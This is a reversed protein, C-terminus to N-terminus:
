EYRRIGERCRRRLDRFARWRTLLGPREGLDRSGERREVVLRGNVLRGTALFSVRQEMDPVSFDHYFVAAPVDAPLERGSLSRVAMRGSDWDDVEVTDATLEAGEGWALVAQDAGSRRAVPYPDGPDILRVVHRGMYWWNERQLLLSGILDRESRFKRLEQHLLKERFIEGAPDHFVEVRASVALAEWGLYALRSDSFVLVVRPSRKIEEAVESEAFTLTFAPEGELLLPVVARLRLEGSVATYAFEAVAAREASGTLEHHTPHAM